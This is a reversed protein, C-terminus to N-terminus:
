PPAPPRVGLSYTKGSELTGQVRAPGALMEYPFTGAPAPLTKTEGVQLTYSVGGIIVTLPDTWDNRLTVQGPPRAPAEARKDGEGARKAKADLKDARRRDRGAGEPDGKAELCAARTRYAKAADRLLDAYGDAKPDALDLEVAYSFVIM